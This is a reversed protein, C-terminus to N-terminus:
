IERRVYDSWLFLKLGEQWSQAVKEPPNSSAVSDGPLVDAIRRDGVYLAYTSGAPKVLVEYVDVGKEFLTNLQAATARAREYPSAFGARDGFRVLEREGDVLLGYCVRGGDEGTVCKEQALLHSIVTDSYDNLVPINLEHFRQKVMDIRENTPAHTDFYDELLNPHRLEYRRMRDLFRLMAQPDYGSKQLYNVADADAENEAKRGYLTMRNENYMDAAMVAEPSQTLLLVLFNVFMSKMGRKYLQVGHRNSVHVLEHALVAALEDDDRVFDMLGQTVLVYGGPLAMANVIDTKLITFHYSLDPRGCVAILSDSINKIRQLAAPDDVEGYYEIISRATEEGIQSEKANDVDLLGARACVPMMVLLAAFLLPILSKKTRDM